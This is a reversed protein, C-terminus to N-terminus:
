KLIEVVRFRLWFTVLVACCNSGLSNTSTQERKGWCLIIGGLVPILITDLVNHSSKLFSLLSRQIHLIFSDQFIAEKSPLFTIRFLWLINELPFFVSFILLMFIFISHWLSNIKFICLIVLLWYFIFVFQRLKARFYTLLFKASWVNNDTM